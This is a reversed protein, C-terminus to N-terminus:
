RTGKLTVVRLYLVNIGTNKWDELCMQFAIKPITLLEQKLKKKIKKITAKKEHTHETKPSYQPQPM